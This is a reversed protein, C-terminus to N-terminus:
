KNNKQLSDIHDLIKLISISIENKPNKAAYLILKQIDKQLAKTNNM